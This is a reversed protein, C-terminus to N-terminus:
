LRCVDMDAARQFTKSEISMTDDIRETRDVDRRLKQSEALARTLGMEFALTAHQKARSDLSSPM